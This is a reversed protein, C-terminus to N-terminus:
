EGYVEQLLLARREIYKDVQTLYTHLDKANFSTKLRHAKFDVIKSTAAGGIGLITQHEEMIQINYMGEAGPRCCGVNELQGSMYGQRYLYYPQLGLRTVAEMAIRFMRQAMDDEPLLMEGPHEDLYLKLRSGRKLALAHLTIDDPDLAAIQRMTDAVDADTEGPLGIILDMNIHPIGAERIDHFMQVIDAPTHQRGIRRLTRLQMTQPNVSVRDVALEKLCAIKAPSMSDPRGAEVTFEVTYPGYFADHVTHLMDSFVADPLSTPTGGGVYINQVKLGYRAVASKVSALDRRWVSMFAALEEEKPLVYAPFSCYLCRSLCFPIGVYISVTKEDSTELFPLQRFALKTICDAKEPSAGYDSLLREYVADEKMGQRIYRHVIKTPRVGHLIGWPAPDMSLDECFIHYLNLKILRHIAAGAREDPRATGVRSFVCEGGDNKKIILKTSVRPGQETECINLISLGDYESSADGTIHVKFLNLIEKVIKVIVEEDSNLYFSKFEM